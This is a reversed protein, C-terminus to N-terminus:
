LVESERKQQARAKKEYSTLALAIGVTFVVGTIVATTRYLLFREALQSGAFFDVTIRTVLVILGVVEIMVGGVFLIKRGAFVDRPHITNEDCPRATNNTTDNM